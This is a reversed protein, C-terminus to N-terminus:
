LCSLMPSISHHHWVLFDRGIQAAILTAVPQLGPPSSIGDGQAAPGAAGGIFQALVSRGQIGQQFLMQGVSGAIADLVQLGLGSWRM